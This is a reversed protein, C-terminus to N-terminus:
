QELCKTLCINLPCGAAVFILTECGIGVRLAELPPIHKTGSRISLLRRTRSRSYSKRRFWVLGGSLLFLHHQFVYWRYWRFRVPSRKRGNVPAVLLMEPYHLRDFAPLNLLPFQFIRWFRHLNPSRFQVLAEASAGDGDSQFLFAAGYHIHEDFVCVQHEVRHRRPHRCGVPLGEKRGAGFVVRAIGLQQQIQQQLMAVPQPGPLGISLVGAQELEQHLIPSLHHILLGPVQQAQDITQFLIKWLHPLPEILQVAREDFRQQFLPWVQFPELMGVRAREALKKVLVIATLLFEDLLADIRNIRGNGSGMVGRNHAHVRLARPMTLSNLVSRWFM